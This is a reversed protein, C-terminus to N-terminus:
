GGSCDTCFSKWKAGKEHDFKVFESTYRIPGNRWIESKVFNRQLRIEIDMEGKDIIISMVDVATEGRRCAPSILKVEECTHWKM